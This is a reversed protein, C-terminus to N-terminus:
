SHIWTLRPVTLYHIQGLQGDNKRSLTELACPTCRGRNTLAELTNRWSTIIVTLLAQEVMTATKSPRLSEAKNSRFLAPTWTIRLHPHSSSVLLHPFQRSDSLSSTGMLFLMSTRETAKPPPSRKSKQPVFSGERQHSLGPGSGPARTDSLRTDRLKEMAEGETNGQPIDLEQPYQGHEELYHDTWRDMCLLSHCEHCRCSKSSATQAQCHM